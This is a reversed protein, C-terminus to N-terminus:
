ATQYNIANFPKGNMEFGDKLDCLLTLTDLTTTVDFMAYLYRGIAQGTNPSQPPISLERQYGAVIRDFGIPGTSVIVDPYWTVTTTGATDALTIAAGGPTASFGFTNTTANVIYLWTAVAYGTGTNLTGTTQAVTVQTGNSLGHGNVTVVTGAVATTNDFAALTRATSPTALEKPVAVISLTVSCDPDAACTAAVTATFKAVVPKGGGLIRQTLAGITPNGPPNGGMDIWGSSVVSGATIAQGTGCLRAFTDIM